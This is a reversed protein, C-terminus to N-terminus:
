FYSGKLLVLGRALNRIYFRKNWVESYSPHDNNSTHLIKTQLCSFFFLVLINSFFYSFNPIKTKTKALHHGLLPWIRSVWPYVTLSPLDRILLGLYLNQIFMLVGDIVQHYMLFFTDIKKGDINKTKWSEYSMWKIPDM